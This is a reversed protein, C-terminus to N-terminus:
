RNVPGAPGRAVDRLLLHLEDLRHKPVTRDIRFGRLRELTQRRRKGVLRVALLPLTLVHSPLGVRRLERLVDGHTEAVLARLRTEIPGYHDAATLRRLVARLVWRLLLVFVAIISVLVTLFTLRLGWETAVALAVLVLAVILLTRSISEGIARGVLYRALAWQSLPSGPRFDGVENGAGDAADDASLWTDRPEGVPEGSPKDPLAPHM